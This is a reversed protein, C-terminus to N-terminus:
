RGIGLAEGAAGDNGAHRITTGIGDGLRKLAHIRSDILGRGFPPTTHM